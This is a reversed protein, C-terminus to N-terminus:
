QTKERAAKKELAIKRAELFVPNYIGENGRIEKVGEKTIIEANLEDSPYVFAVFDKGSVLGCNEMGGGGWEGRWFFFTKRSEGRQLGNNKNRWELRRRGNDWNITPSENHFSLSGETAQAVHLFDINEGALAVESKPQPRSRETM